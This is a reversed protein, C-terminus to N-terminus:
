KKYTTKYVNTRLLDSIENYNVKSKLSNKTKSPKTKKTTTNTPKSQRAQIRNVSNRKSSKASELINKHLVVTDLDGELSLNKNKSRSLSTFKPKRIQSSSTNNNKQNSTNNALFYKNEKQIDHKQPKPVRKIGMKSDNTQSTISHRRSNKNSLDTFKNKKDLSSHYAKRESNISIDNNRTKQKTNSGPYNYSDDFKNPNKTKIERELLKLKEEKLRLEEEKLILKKEKIKMLRENTIAEQEELIKINEKHFQIEEDSYMDENFDEQPQYYPEPRQISNKRSSDYKKAQYRDKNINPSDSNHINSHKNKRNSIRSIKEQNKDPTNRKQVNYIENVNSDIEKKSPFDSMIQNLNQVEDAENETRIIAKNVNLKREVEEQINENKHDSYKYLDPKKCVQIDIYDKKNPSLSYDNYDSEEFTVYNNIQTKHNHFDQRNEEIKKKLTESYDAQPTGVYTNTHNRNISFDQKNEQIKKKLNESYDRLKKDEYKKPKNQSFNNNKKNDSPKSTSGIVFESFDDTSEPVLSIYGDYKSNTKLLDNTKYASTKTGSPKSNTGYSFNQDNGKKNDFKSYDYMPVGFKNTTNQKSSKSIGKAQNEYVNEPMNFDATNKRPNQYDYEDQDQYLMERSNFREHKPLSSTEGYLNLGIENINNSEYGYNDHLQKNIYNKPPQHKILNKDLGLSISLLDGFGSGQPMKKDTNAYIKENSYTLKKPKIISGPNTYYEDSNEGRNPSLKEPSVTKKILFNAEKLLDAGWADDEASRKGKRPNSNSPFELINSGKNTNSYNVGVQERSYNQSQIESESNEEDIVMCDQNNIMVENHEFAFSQDESEMVFCDDNSILVNKQDHDIEIHQQSENQSDMVFCEEDNILVENTSNIKPIDNDSEAIFCDDNNILIDKTSVLKMSDSHSDVLVIDDGQVMVDDSDAEQLESEELGGETDNITQMPTQMTMQNSRHTPYGISSQNGLTNARSKDFYVNDMNNIPVQGTRMSLDTNLPYNIYSNIQNDSETHSSNSIYNQMRLNGKPEDVDCIYKEFTAYVADKKDYKFSGESNGKENDYDELDSKNDERFQEFFSDNENFTDPDTELRTQFKAVHESIVKKIVQDENHKVQQKKADFTDLIEQYDQPLNSEDYIQLGKQDINCKEEMEIFFDKEEEDDGLYLPCLPSKLNRNRFASNYEDNALEESTKDKLYAVEYLAESLVKSQKENLSLSKDDKAKKKSIKRGKFVSVNGDKNQHISKKFQVRDRKEKQTERKKKPTKSKSKEKTANKNSEVKKSANGIRKVKDKSINSTNKQNESSDAIDSQSIQHEIRDTINEKSNENSSGRIIDRYKLMDNLYDPNDNNTLLGDISFNNKKKLEQILIEDEMQMQEYIAGRNENYNIKQDYSYINNHQRGSM